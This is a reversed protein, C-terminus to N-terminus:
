LALTPQKTDANASYGVARRSSSTQHHKKGKHAPHIRAPIIKRFYDFLRDGHVRNIYRCFQIRGYLREYEEEVVTTPTGAIYDNFCDIATILQHEYEPTIDLSGDNVRVGTVVQLASEPMLKHKEESYRFGHAVVADRVIDDM